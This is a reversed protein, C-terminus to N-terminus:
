SVLGMSSLIVALSRYVNRLNCEIKSFARM